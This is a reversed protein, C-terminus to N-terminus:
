RRTTEPRFERQIVQSLTSLGDVLRDCITLSLVSRFEPTSVNQSVLLETRVRRGDRINREEVRDLSKVEYFWVRPSSINTALVGFVFMM